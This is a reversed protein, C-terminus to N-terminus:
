FINCYNYIMLFIYLYRFIYVFYYNYFFITQLPYLKVALCVKWAIIFAKMIQWCSCYIAGDSFHSEKRDSKRDLGYFSSYNHSGATLYSSLRKTFAWELGAGNQYLVSVKWWGFWILIWYICSLIMNWESVRWMISTFHSAFEM